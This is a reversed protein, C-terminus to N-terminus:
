ARELSLLTANPETPLFAFRYTADADLGEYQLLEVGFTFEGVRIRWTGDLSPDYEFPGEITYVRGDAHVAETHGQRRAFFGVLLVLFTVMVGVVALAAATDPGSNAAALVVTGGLLLGFIPLVVRTRRRGSSAAAAFGQAQSASLRGALNAQLDEADFLFLRGLKPDYAM